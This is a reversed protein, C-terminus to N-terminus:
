KSLEKTSKIKPAPKEWNKLYQVISEYYRLLMNEVQIVFQKRSDFKRGLYDVYVLNFSKIEKKTLLSSNHAYELDSIQLRIPKNSFKVNIDLMLEKEIRTFLEINKNACKKLQNRIWTIKSRTSRNKPAEINVSMEVTKSRFNAKICIPSTAGEVNLYSKLNKNKILEQKENKIRESLNVKYKTKGTKVLLGLERSLTLGSDREKQIWSSIAEETAPDNLKLSAGSSIKQCVETWGPKMQTFGLVGSNSHELYNIVENMLLKQNKDKIKKDNKMCLIHAITLVYSWSLHNMSISKPSKINMPTQTSFNVFENSLTLIKPIKYAKLINFYDKIQNADLNNNKNKSEIAMADVIKKGRVLLFLGDIRKRDFLTFEIETYAYLSGYTSFGISKFIDKKFEDIFNIASMFISTLAMEDGPKYFPILRSKQLHIENKSKVLDNFDSIKMGILKKPKKM